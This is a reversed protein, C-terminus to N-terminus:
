KPFLADQWIGSVYLLMAYFFNVSFPFRGSQILTGSSFIIAVFGLPRHEVFGRFKPSIALVNGVFRSLYIHDNLVMFISVSLCSVWVCSWFQKNGIFLKKFRLTIGGFMFTALFVKVNKEIFFETLSAGAPMAFFGQVTQVMPEVLPVLAGMVDGGLVGGVGGLAAWVAWFLGVKSFPRLVDLCVKAIRRLPAFVLNRVILPINPMMADVIPRLTPLITVDLARRFTNEGAFFSGVLVGGKKCISWSRDRWMGRGKPQPQPALKNEPKTKPEQLLLQKKEMQTISHEIAIELQEWGRDYGRYCVSLGLLIVWIPTQNQSYEGNSDYGRPPRPMLPPDPDLLQERFSRSPIDQPSQYEPHQGVRPSFVRFTNPPLPAQIAEEELQEPNQQSPFGMFSIIRRLFRRVSESKM